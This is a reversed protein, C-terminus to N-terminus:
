GELETWEKLSWVLVLEENSHYNRASLAPGGEAASSLVNGVAVDKSWRCM